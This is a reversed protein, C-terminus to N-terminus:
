VFTFLVAVLLVTLTQRSKLLELDIQVTTLTKRMPVHVGSEDRTRTLESRFSYPSNGRVM